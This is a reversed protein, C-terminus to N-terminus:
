EPQTTATEHMRQPVNTGPHLDLRNIAAHADYANCLLKKVQSRVCFQLQMTVIGLTEDLPVMCDM